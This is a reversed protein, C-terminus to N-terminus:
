RVIQIQLTGMELHGQDMVKFNDHMIRFAIQIWHSPELLFNACRGCEVLLETSIMSTWTRPKNFVFMCKASKTEHLVSQSILDVCMQIKASSKIALLKKHKMVKRVILGNGLALAFGM